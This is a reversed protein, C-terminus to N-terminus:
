IRFKLNQTPKKSILNALVMLNIILFPVVPTMYYIFKPRTIFFWPLWLSLSILSPLYFIPSLKLNYIKSKLNQTKLKSNQAQKSNQTKLIVVIMKFLMLGSSVLLGGTLVVALIPNVQAVRNVRDGNSELAYYVPKQGYVWQWPQSSHSHNFNATTQYHIIEQHLKIFQNIGSTSTLLPLYALLYIVIPLLFFYFISSILYQISSSPALFSSSPTTLESNPTPLRGVIEYDQRVPQSNKIQTLLFHIFFVPLVWFASWKTALSLGLFLSSLLHFISSLKLNYIISKLNFDDNQVQKLNRIEFKLNKNARLLRMSPKATKALLYFITALLLWTTLIVDNNSLQSQTISLKELALILGALLSLDRRQTLALTLWIILAINLTGFVVSPLRWALPNNGLWRISVMWIYKAVPPHLWEIAPPRYTYENIDKPYPLHWWQFMIGPRKIEQWATFAHFDEDFIYRNPKAVKDARIFFGLAVILVAFFLFFRNIFKGATKFM